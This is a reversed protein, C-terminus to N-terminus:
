NLRRGSGYGRAPRAGPGRHESRRSRELCRATAADGPRGAGEGISLGNFRTAPMICYPTSTFFAEDATYVDYPQLDKEEAPIGLEACLELVTSRSIGALVNRTTPTLVRGDAVVFFNGGKNEAVNGALTWCCASPM